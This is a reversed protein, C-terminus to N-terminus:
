LCHLNQCKIGGANIINMNEITVGTNELLRLGAKNFNSRSVPAVCVLEDGRSWGPNKEAFFRINNKKLEKEGIDAIGAKLREKLISAKIIGTSEEFLGPFKKEAITKMIERVKAPTEQGSKPYYENFFTPLFKYTRYGKSLLYWYFEHEEKEYMKSLAVAFKTWLVSLKTESWCGKDVITDGSFLVAYKGKSHCGKIVMQTSFGKIEGESELIIVWQKERLDNIFSEKNAKDYYRSFLLYMMEIDTEKLDTINAISGKIRQTDTKSPM